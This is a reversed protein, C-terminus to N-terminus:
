WPRNVGLLASLQDAVVDDMTGALRDIIRRYSRYSAKTARIRGGAEISAITAEDGHGIANRHDVFEELADLEAAASASAAKLDHVLDLLDLHGEVRVLLEPGEGPGVGDIVEGQLEPWPELARDEVGLGVGLPEVLHEEGVRLQRLHDLALDHAGAVVGHPLFSLVVLTSGIPPTCRRKGPERITM